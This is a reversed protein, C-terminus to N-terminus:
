AMVMGMMPVSVRTTIPEGIESPINKKDEELVALYEKIADAINEKASEFTEGQSFCGPLLPVSVFYGGEQAPEFITTYTVIKKNIM